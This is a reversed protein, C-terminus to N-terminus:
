SANHKSAKPTNQMHFIETILWFFLFYQWRSCADALAGATMHHPIFFTLGLPGVECVKIEQICCDQVETTGGEYNTRSKVPAALHEHLPQNWITCRDATVQDSAKEMFRSRAEHDFKIYVRATTWVNLFDHEQKKKYDEALWCLGDACLPWDLRYIISLFM